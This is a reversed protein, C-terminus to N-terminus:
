KEAANIVLVPVPANKVVRETVSGLHALRDRGIRGHTGMVIADVGHEEVYELIASDPTGEVVATEADVGADAARDAIVAVSHDGEAHLDASVDAQVDDDAGLYQRRDVVYLAHVEADYRRAFELGHELISDTGPRGDTPILVRDYM